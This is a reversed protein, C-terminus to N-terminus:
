GNIGPQNIGTYAGGRQHYRNRQRRKEGQPPVRRLIVPHCDPLVAIQPMHHAEGEPLRKERCQERDYGRYEEGAREIAPAKRTPQRQQTQTCHGQDERHQDSNEANKADITATAPQCCEALRETQLPGKRGVAQLTNQQGM